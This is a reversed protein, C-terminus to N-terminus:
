KDGKIVKGGKAINHYIVGLTVIDSSFLKAASYEGNGFMMISKILDFKTM